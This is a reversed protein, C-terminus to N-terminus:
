AGLVTAGDPNGNLRAEIMARIGALVEDAQAQTLYGDVVQVDLRAAARAVLAEVFAAQDVGNDDLLEGLTTGDALAARVDRPTMGLEDAALQLAGPVIQRTLRNELPSTELLGNLRLQLLALHQDAATQTLWDNAVAQALRAEAAALASDLVTQPDGGAAIIADAVTSGARLEDRVITTDVGLESLLGSGMSWGWGNFLGLGADGPGFGRGGPMGNGGSGQGYGLGGQGRGPGRGGSGQGQGRGNSLMAGGWRLSGPVWDGNVADTVVQELNSLMVDARAQTLLGDEVASNIRETLTALAADIVVQVDGGEETVIGALTAGGHLQALIDATSLGTEAATALLASTVASDGQGGWPGGQQATATLVGGSVTVAIILGTIVKRIRM